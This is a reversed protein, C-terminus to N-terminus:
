INGLSSPRAYVALIMSILVMGSGVIELGSLTEGLILFAMIICFVPEATSILTARAAGINQIGKLFFLVALVTNLVAMILAILIQTLTLSELVSLERYYIPAIIILALLSLTATLSLPEYDVLTKQGILSYLSYGLCALLAFTIGRSSLNPNVGGLGSILAIGVLAMALGVFLRPVFRERFFLISLIAVFVPHAFFIVTTLGASLTQLALFYFLGTITLFLGQAVVWWSLSLIRGYRFFKIVIALLIFSFLYRLLMTIGPSLGSGYALKVLIPLTAYMLASFLIYISGKLEISANIFM